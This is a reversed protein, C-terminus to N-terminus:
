LHCPSPSHATVGNGAPSTSLWVPMSPKSSVGLASNENVTGRHIIIGGSIVTIIVTVCGLCQASLALGWHRWCLWGSFHSCLGFVLYHCQHYNHANERRSFKGCFILPCWWQGQSGTSILARSLPPAGPSPSPLDVTRKWLFAVSPLLLGRNSSPQLARMHGQSKSKLPELTAHWWLGICHRTAIETCVECDWFLGFLVVKPGAPM